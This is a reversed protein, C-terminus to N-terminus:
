LAAAEDLSILANIGVRLLLRDRWHAAFLFTTSFGLHIKFQVVVLLSIDGTGARERIVFQGRVSRV